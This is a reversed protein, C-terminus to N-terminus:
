GYHFTINSNYLSYCCIRGGVAIAATQTGNSGHETLRFPLSAATSWSTGNYEESRSNVCLIKYGGGSAIGANQTGAYGSWEFGLLPTSQVSWSTGNYEETCGYINPADNRYGGVAVAANQTGGGALFYRGTNMAGGSTWSTGGYEETCSLNPFSSDGRFGGFTLAANQTGAGANGWRYQILEGGASWSSGNYEETRASGYPKGEGGFIIGANQEGAGAGGSRPRILNNSTSWTSGNYEETKEHDPTGATAVAATETGFSTIRYRPNNLSGGSSTWVRTNVLCSAVSSVFGSNTIRISYYPSSGSLNFIGVGYWLDNGAFVTGTSSAYVTSGSVAHINSGTSYLFWGISASCAANSTGYGSGAQSTSGYAYLINTTSYSGSIELTSDYLPFNRFQETSTVDDPDEVVGAYAPDFLTVDANGILDGFNDVGSVSFGAGAIAGAITTNSGTGFMSFSGVTPVAM